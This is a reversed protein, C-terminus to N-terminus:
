LSWLLERSTGIGLWIFGTWAGQGMEQLYMEIDYDWGRRYQGLPRKREPRGLLVRFACIREGYTGCAGGM